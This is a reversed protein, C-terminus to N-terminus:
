ASGAVGFKDLAGESEGEAALDFFLVDVHGNAAEAGVGFAGFGEEGPHRRVPVLERAPERGAQRHEARHDRDARARERALFIQLTNLSEKPLPARLAEILPQRLAQISNASLSRPQLSIPRINFLPRLPVRHLINLALQLHPRPRHPSTLVMPLMRPAPLPNMTLQPLIPSLM